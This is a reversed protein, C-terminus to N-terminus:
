GNNDQMLIKISFRQFLVTERSPVVPSDGIRGKNLPKVAYVAKILAIIIDTVFIRGEFELALLFVM